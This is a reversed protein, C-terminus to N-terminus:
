QCTYRRSGLGWSGHFSKPFEPWQPDLGSFDPSLRPQQRSKGLWWFHINPLISTHRSVQGLQQRPRSVRRSHCVYGILGSTISIISLLM